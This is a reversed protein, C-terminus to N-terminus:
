LASAPRDAAFLPTIRFHGLHGAAVAARALDTATATDPADYVVGVDYEDFCYFVDQVMSGLTEALEVVAPTPDDAHAALASMLRETCTSELMFCPM